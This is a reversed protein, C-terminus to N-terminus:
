GVCSFTLTSHMKIQFINRGGVIVGISFADPEDFVARGREEALCIEGGGFAEDMVCIGNPGLVSGENKEPM